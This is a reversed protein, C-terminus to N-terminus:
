ICPHFGERKLQGIWREFTATDPAEDAFFLVDWGGRANIRPYGSEWRLSALNEVARRVRDLQADATGSMAPEDILRLYVRRPNLPPM